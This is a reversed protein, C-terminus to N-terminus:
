RVITMKGTATYDGATLRYVYVGSAVKRGLDNTGDWRMAHPGTVQKEGDVLTRIRRGLIDYIVIRVRSQKKLTYAIRTEGDFPNPYNGKLEYAFSELPVGESTSKAYSETGTIVRLHRTPHEDTLSVEVTGDDTPLLRRDDKDLVYLRFDDPRADAEHLRISVTKDTFFRERVRATVEVDWAQGSSSLPKFNGSQHLYPADDRLVSVRLYDGVPPPEPVDEPGAGPRAGPMMGIWNDADTLTRELADVYV